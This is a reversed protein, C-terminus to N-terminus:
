LSVITVFNYKIIQATLKKIKLLTKTLEDDVEKYQKLIISFRINTGLWGVM